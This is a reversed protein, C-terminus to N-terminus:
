VHNQDIPHSIFNEVMSRASQWNDLSLSQRDHMELLDSATLYIEKIEPEVTKAEERLAEIDKSHDTKTGM